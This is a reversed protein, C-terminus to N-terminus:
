RIIVFFALLNNFMHVMMGAYLAGTKERLYVLVVSLLFTDIAAAWVLATGAGLQLHAAGFFLSTALMAPWFRWAKRLGGYLYGRVLIEEGLPPLFVLSIFALIYEWNNAINNFGVDQKQSLLDPSLANLIVGTVILVVFFAAFAIGAKLLDSIDPRRGLGIAAWGIGRNRVLRFVLYAALAEAILIYFFQASVSDNLGGRSGPRSIALALEVFFAAILQSLLFILLTSTIVRVPGGFGRRGADAEKVSKKEPTRGSM